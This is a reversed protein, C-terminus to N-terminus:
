PVRLTSLVKEALAKCEDGETLSAQVVWVSAGMEYNFGAFSKDEIYYAGISGFLHTFTIV